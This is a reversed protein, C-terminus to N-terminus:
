EIKLGGLPPIVVKPSALIKMRMAQKAFKLWKDEERYKELVERLGQWVEEDLGLEKNPKLIKMTTALQAFAEWYGVKRKIGEERFKKLRERMVQWRTTEALYLNKNPDLIKIVMAVNDIWFWFQRNEYWELMKRIEEWAEDDLGLDENPNLIKIVMAHNIFDHWQNRERYSKLEKRMGEWAEDDLYIDIKFNLIKMAMAMSAFDLWNNEKRYKELTERMKEWDDPTIEKRVDWPLTEGLYEQRTQEILKELARLMGLDQNEEAENLMDLIEKKREQPILKKRQEPQEQQEPRSLKEFKNM